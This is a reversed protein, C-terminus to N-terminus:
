SKEHVRKNFTQLPIVELMRIKMRFRSVSKSNQSCIRSLGAWMGEIKGRHFNEALSLSCLTTKVM